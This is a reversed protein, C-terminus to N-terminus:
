PDHESLLADFEEWPRGEMYVPLGIDRLLHGDLQALQHAARRRRWSRRAQDFRAAIAEWLTRRRVIPATDTTTLM